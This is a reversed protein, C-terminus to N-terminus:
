TVAEDPEAKPKRVIQQVSGMKLERFPVPKGDLDIQWCWVHGNREDVSLIIDHRILTGNILVDVKDPWTADHFPDDLDRSWRKPPLTQDNMRAGIM